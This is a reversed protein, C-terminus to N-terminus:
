SRNNKTSSAAAPLDRVAGAIRFPYRNHKEDCEIAHPHLDSISGLDSRVPFIRGDFAPLRRLLMKSEFAFICDCAPFLVELKVCLFHTADGTNRQSPESDYSATTDNRSLRAHRAENWLCSQNARLHPGINALHHCRRGRTERRPGDERRGLFLFLVGRGLQAGTPLTAGVTGHNHARHV